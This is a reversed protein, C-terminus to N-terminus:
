DFRPAPLPTIAFPVGFLVALREATLQDAAPGSAQMRGDKLLVAQDAVALAFVIDHSSLLVGRGSSAVSRVAAAVTVAHAPDLMDTPEDLLLYPAEQALARAIRVLQLEGGSLATIRREAQDAMGVMTLSDLAILRDRGGPVALYPLHPARGFTVYELCTFAFALREAQPLFARPGDAWFVGNSAQLWGAAIGLATSKGSGNPGLLAVTQGAEVQLSFASLAQRQEGKYRFSVDKFRLM